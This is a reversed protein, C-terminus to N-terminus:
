PEARYFAVPLIFFHAHGAQEVKSFGAEKLLALIREAANDKLREHPHFISAIGHSGEFDALHFSGDLKLVRRCEQLTKLKDSEKLHHVMFSSLVRDFTQDQYPLQDSFGQDLQMAIRNRVAKLEARHLAKPDPDLGTVEAAPEARKINLLVEGTGCGIELLKHGGHIESQQILRKRIAGGGLLKVFPDYFPLLWDRGAAPLFDRETKSHAHM